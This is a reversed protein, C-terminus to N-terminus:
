ESVACLSEYLLLHLRPYTEAAVSAHRVQSRNESFDLVGYTEM